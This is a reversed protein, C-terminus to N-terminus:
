NRKIRDFRVMFSLQINRKMELVYCNFSVFFLFNFFSKLRVNSAGRKREKIEFNTM